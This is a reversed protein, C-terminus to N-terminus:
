RKPRPRDFIRRHGNQLRTSSAHRFENDCDFQPDDVSRSSTQRLYLHVTGGPCTDNCLLKAPITGQPVNIVTFPAAALINVSSHRVNCLRGDYYESLTPSGAQPVDEPPPMFGRSRFGDYEEGNSSSVDISESRRSAKSGQSTWIQISASSRSHGRLFGRVRGSDPRQSPRSTVFGSGPAHGAATSRPLKRTSRGTRPADIPTSTCALEHFPVGISGRRSALDIRRKSSLASYLM